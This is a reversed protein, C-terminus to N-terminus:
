LLRQSLLFKDIEIFDLFVLLLVILYHPGLLLLAILLKPVQGPYVASFVILRPKEFILNLFRLHGSYLVNLPFVFHLLPVVGLFFVCLHDPVLDHGLHDDLLLVLESFSAAVHWRHSVSLLEFHAILVHLLNM